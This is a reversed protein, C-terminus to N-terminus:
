LIELTTKKYTASNRILFCQLGLETHCKLTDRNVIILKLAVYYLDTPGQPVHPYGGVGGKKQLLRVVIPPLQYKQYPM